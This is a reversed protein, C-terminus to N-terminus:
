RAPGAEDDRAGRWLAGVLALPVGALLAVILVWPLWPGGPRFTAIRQAMTPSRRAFSHEFRETFFLMFNPAVHQDDVFTDAKTRTRDAAAYLDVPRRGENRACVEVEKPGEPPDVPFTLVDSDAYIPPHRASARYGDGTITLRMPQAPGKRTGVRLYAVESREDMVANRLCAEQAPEVPVVVTEFLPPPQPNAAPLLRPERLYPLVVLLGVAAAGLLGAGLAISRAM